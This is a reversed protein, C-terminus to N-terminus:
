LSCYKSTLTYNWVWVVFRLTQHTDSGDEEGKHEFLGV